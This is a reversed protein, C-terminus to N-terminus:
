QLDLQIVQISLGPLAHQFKSSVDHLTSEVPIIRNPADISNTEQTDHASLSILKANAAVKAGNLDIDLM